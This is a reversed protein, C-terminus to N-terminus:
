KAGRIARVVWAVIRGFILADKIEDMTKGHALMLDRQADLRSGIERHLGDDQISRDELARLRKEQDGMIRDVRDNQRKESRAVLLEVRSWGTIKQAIQTMPTVESAEAM